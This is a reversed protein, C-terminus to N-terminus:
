GDPQDIAALRFRRGADNLAEDRVRPLARARAHQGHRGAMAFKEEAAGYGYFAQKPPPASVLVRPRTREWSM